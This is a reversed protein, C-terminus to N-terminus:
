QSNKGIEHCMKKSFQTQEKGTLISYVPLRAEIMAKKSESYSINAIMTTNVWLLYGQNTESPRPPENHLHVEMPPVSEGDVSILARVRITGGDRNRGTTTFPKFVNWTCAFFGMEDKEHLIVQSPSIRMVSGDGTVVLEISVMKNECNEVIIVNSVIYTGTGTLFCAPFYLTDASFKLVSYTVPTPTRDSQRIGVARRM